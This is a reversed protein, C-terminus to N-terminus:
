ESGHIIIDNENLKFENILFDKVNHRCDGTMQIVEGNFEEIDKIYGNCCFKVKLKKLLESSKDKDLNLGQIITFCKRANRKQLRVHICTNNEIANNCIVNNTNIIIM